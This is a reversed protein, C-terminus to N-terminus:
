AVAVVTDLTQKENSKIGTESSNGGMKQGLVRRKTAYESKAVSINKEILFYKIVRFYKCVRITGAERRGEGDNDSSRARFNRSETLLEDGRPFLTEHKM